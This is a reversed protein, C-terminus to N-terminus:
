GYKDSLGRVEQDLGAKLMQETRQEVRRRLKDNDIKLGVILTKPKLGKKTPKVGKAEIARIIRRKNRRDIGSLDIQLDEAKKLLQPTTLANLEAREEASVNPLFGFDYLVSDVYLGTGGVLTPLKGRNQIGAIATEALEEFKPANFGEPPDAVDLLHYKVETQEAKSPKSTGIDFGRYVTWSDASIIEGGFNSALKLALDSKGSATPGVIVLLKPTSRLGSVTSRM